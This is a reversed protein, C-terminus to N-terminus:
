KELFKPENWYWRTQIRDHATDYNTKFIKEYKSEAYEHQLLQIDNKIYDGKYLRNWAAAIEINPDFRSIKTRLVHMDKFLHDKITQIKSLSMGTNKSIKEVDDLLGQIRVYEKEAWEFAKYDDLPRVIRCKEGTGKVVKYIDKPEPKFMKVFEKDEKKQRGKVKCARRDAARQMRNTKVDKLTSVSVSNNNLIVKDITHTGAGVLKIAYKDVKGNFYMSAAISSAARLCGHVTVNAMAAELEKQKEEFKENNGALKAVGAAAYDLVVLGVNLAFKATYYKGMVVPFLGFLVMETKHNLAYEAVNIAADQIGELVAQGCDMLGWCFDAIHVTAIIDGIKNFQAGRAAMSVIYNTSSRYEKIYASHKLLKSTQELIDILEIHLQHQLPNYLGNRFLQTDVKNSYLLADVDHSLQYKREIFFSANDKTSEYALKRANYRAYADNQSGKLFLEVEEQWLDFQDALALTDPWIEKFTDLQKNASSINDIIEPIHVRSTANENSRREDPYYAASESAHGRPDRDINDYPDYYSSSEWSPRISHSSHERSTDVSSPESPVDREFYSIPPSFYEPLLRNLECRITSCVFLAFFAFISAVAVGLAKVYQM